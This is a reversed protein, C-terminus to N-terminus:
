TEHDINLLMDRGETRADRYFYALLRPKPVELCGVTWKGLGTGIGCKMLGPGTQQVLLCGRESRRVVDVDVESLLESERKGVM